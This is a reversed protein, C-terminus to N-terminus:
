LLYACQATMTKLFQTFRAKESHLNLHTKQNGAILLMKSLSKAVTQRQFVAVAFNKLFGNHDLDKVIIVM